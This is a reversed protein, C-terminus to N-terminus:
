NIVSSTPTKSFSHFGAIITLLVKIFAQVGDDNEFQDLALYSIDFSEISERCLCDFDFGLLFLMTTIVTSCIIKPNICLYLSYIYGVYKGSAYFSAFLFLGFFSYFAVGASSRSQFYWIFKCAYFNIRIVM